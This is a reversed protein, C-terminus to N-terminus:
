MLNGVGVEITEILQDSKASRILTAASDTRWNLSILNMQVYDAPATIKNTCTLEIGKYCMAANTSDDVSSSGLDVFLQEEAYIYRNRATSSLM